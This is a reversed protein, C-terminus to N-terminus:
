AIPNKRPRGRRRAVVEKVGESNKMNDIQNEDSIESLSLIEKESLGTSKMITKIDVNDELLFKAVQIMKPDDTNSKRDPFKM